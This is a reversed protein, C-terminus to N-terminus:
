GLACAAHSVWCAQDSSLMSRELKPGIQSLSCLPSTAASIKKPMPTVVLHWTISIIKCTSKAVLAAAIISGRAILPAGGGSPLSRASSESPAKSRPFCGRLFHNIDEPWNTPLPYLGSLASLVAARFKAAANRRATQRDRHSSLNHTLVGGVVVVVLGVILSSPWDM